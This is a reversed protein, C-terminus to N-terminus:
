DNKFGKIFATINKAAADALPEFISALNGVHYGIMYCHFGFTNSILAIHTESLKDAAHQGDRCVVTQWYRKVHETKDM